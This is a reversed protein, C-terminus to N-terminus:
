RGSLRFELRPAVPDEESHHPNFVLTIPGEGEPVPFELMLERGELLAFQARRFSEALIPYARDEQVLVPPEFLATSLGQQVTCTVVYTVRTVVGSSAITVEPPTPTWSLWLLPLEPTPTPTAGFAGTYQLSFLSGLLFSGVAVAAILLFFGTKRM